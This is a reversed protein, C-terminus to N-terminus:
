FKVGNYGEEISLAYFSDLWIGDFTQEAARASKLHYNKELWIEYGTVIAASSFHLSISRTIPDVVPPTQNAYNAVYIGYVWSLSLYVGFFKLLFFITPRFERWM